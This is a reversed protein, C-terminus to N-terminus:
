GDGSDIDKIILNTENEGVKRITINKNTNSNIQFGLNVHDNLADHKNISNIPLGSAEGTSLLSNENELLSGVSLFNTSILITPIILVLFFIFLAKEQSTGTKFRNRRSLSVFEVKSLPNFVPCGNWTITDLLIHSLFGIILASSIVFNWFGLLAFPILWLVNHGIGRHKDGLKDVVDPFVSIWGAIFIGIFISDLNLLYAFVGFFLISGAIHTYIKM